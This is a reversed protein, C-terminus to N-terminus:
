LKNNARETVQPSLEGSTLALAFCTSACLIIKEATFTYFERLLPAEEAKRKSSPPMAKPSSPLLIWKGRVRPSTDVGYTNVSLACPSAM